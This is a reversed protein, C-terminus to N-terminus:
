QYMIDINEEQECIPINTVDQEYVIHVNIVYSKNLIVFRETNDDLVYRIGIVDDTEYEIFAIFYEADITTVCVCVNHVDEIHCLMDNAIMKM